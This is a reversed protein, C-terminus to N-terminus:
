FGSVMMPVEYEHVHDKPPLCAPKVLPTWYFPTDVELLAIDAKPTKKGKHPNKPNEPWYINQIQKYLGLKM